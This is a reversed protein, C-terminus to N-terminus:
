IEYNPCYTCSQFGRSGFYCLYLHIKLFLYLVCNPNALPIDYISSFMELQMRPKTFSLKLFSVNEIFVNYL